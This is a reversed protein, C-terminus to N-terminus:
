ERFLSPAKSAEIEEGSITYGLQRYGGLRRHFMRNLMPVELDADMAGKPAGRGPNHETNFVPLTSNIM